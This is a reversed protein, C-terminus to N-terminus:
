TRKIEVSMASAINESLEVVDQSFGNCVNKTEQDALDQVSLTESFPLGSLSFYGFLQSLVANCHCSIMSLHLGRNGERQM